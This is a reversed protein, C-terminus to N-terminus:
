MKINVSYYIVKKFTNLYLFHEIKSYYENLQKKWWIFAVETLM